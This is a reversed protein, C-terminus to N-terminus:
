KSTSFIDDLTRLLVKTSIPHPATPRLTYLAHDGRFSLQGEGARSSVACNIVEVQMLRNANINKRLLELNYPAPEIALVRGHPNRMAAYVTFVGMHAGVDVVTDGDSIMARGYTGHQYIEDIIKKDDPRYFLVEGKPLVFRSRLWRSKMRFFGLRHLVIDMTDHPIFLETARRLRLWWKQLCSYLSIM